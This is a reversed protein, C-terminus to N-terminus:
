NKKKKLECLNQRRYEIYIYMKSSNGRWVHFEKNRKSEEQARVALLVTKHKPVTSIEQLSRNGRKEM